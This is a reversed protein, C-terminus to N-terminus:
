DTNQGIRWLVGSPDWLVFDRMQWPRDEPPEARVQYKAVLNTTLIHQWWAEVDEVLLHMVMNNAFEAQYHNQLLFSTTGLRLYALEDSQWALEFGLDQYFALSQTFTKAPVFTKLEVPTLNEM